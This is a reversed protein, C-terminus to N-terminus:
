PGCCTGAQFGWSMPRWRPSSSAPTTGVADFSGISMDAAAELRAIWQNFANADEVALAADPRWTPVVRTAPDERRALAHHHDLSDAPDDTTCVVAVRFQRLLGQTTFEPTRLLEHSM